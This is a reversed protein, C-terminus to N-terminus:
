IAAPKAPTTAREAERQHLRQERAATKGAEVQQASPPGVARHADDQYRRNDNVDHAKPDGTWGIYNVRQQRVRRCRKRDETDAGHPCKEGGCQESREPTAERRMDPPHAM